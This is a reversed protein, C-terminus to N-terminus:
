KGVIGEVACCLVASICRLELGKSRRRASLIQLVTVDRGYNPCAPRM